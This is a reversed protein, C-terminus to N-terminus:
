NKYYNKKSARLISVIRNRLNKYTTYLDEKRSVDKAKIYKKLLKDRRKISVRIAPTIWPKAQLKVEKKTLIRLPAYYDIIENSKEWFEKYILGPDASDLPLVSDWDM